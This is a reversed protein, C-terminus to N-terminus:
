GHGLAGKIVNIDTYNINMFTMGNIDLTKLENGVQYKLTGGLQRIMNPKETTTSFPIYLAYM